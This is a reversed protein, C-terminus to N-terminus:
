CKLITIKNNRAHVALACDKFQFLTKEDKYKLQERMFYSLNALRELSHGFSREITVRDIHLDPHFALIIVYSVVFM